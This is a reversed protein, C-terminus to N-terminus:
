STCPLSPTLVLHQEAAVFLSCIQSALPREPRRAEIVEEILKTEMWNAGWRHDVVLLSFASIAVANEMVRKVTGSPKLANPPGGGAGLEDHWQLLVTPRCGQPACSRSDLQVMALKSQHRGIFGQIRHMPRRGCNASAEMGPAPPGV